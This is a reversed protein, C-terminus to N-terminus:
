NCRLYNIRMINHVPSKHIKNNIQYTLRNLSSVMIVNTYYPQGRDIEALIEEPVDVCM